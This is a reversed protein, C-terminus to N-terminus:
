LQSESQSCKPPLLPRACRHLTPVHPQKWSSRQMQLTSTGKWSSLCMRCGREHHGLRCTGCGLASTATLTLVMAAKQRQCQRQKSHLSPQLCLSRQPSLTVQSRFTLQPHPPPQQHAQLRRRQKRSLQRRGHLQPRLQAHLAQQRQLLYQAPDATRCMLGGDSPKLLLAAGCAQQQQQLTTPTCGSM